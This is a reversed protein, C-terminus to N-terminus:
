DHQYKNQSNTHYGSKSEFQRKTSHECDDTPEQKNTNNSEFEKYNDDAWRLIVKLCVKENPDKYQLKDLARKQTQNTPDDDTYQNFLMTDRTQDQMPYNCEDKSFCPISRNIEKQYEFDKNSWGRDSTNGGIQEPMNEQLLNEIDDLSDMLEKQCPDPPHPPIFSDEKIEEKRVTTEEDHTNLTNASKNARM